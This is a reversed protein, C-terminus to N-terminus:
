SVELTAGRRAEVEFLSITTLGVVVYVTGVLAEAGILRIVHSLPAGAVLQRAANAGHTVPLGQALTSLWGPLRDLPVNVGAFILLVYVYIFDDIFRNASSAADFLLGFSAAIGM